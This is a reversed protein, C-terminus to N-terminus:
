STRREPGHAELADLAAQMRAVLPPSVGARGREVISVQSVLCRAADALDAQTIDLRKRRARMTAGRQRRAEIIQLGRARSSDPNADPITTSVASM